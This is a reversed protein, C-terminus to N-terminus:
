KRQVKFLFVSFHQVYSPNHSFYFFTDYMFGHRVNGQIVKNKINYGMDILEHHKM